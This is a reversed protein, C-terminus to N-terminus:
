DEPIDRGPSISTSSQGLQDFARYVCRWNGVVKVRTEGVFWGNGVATPVTASTALLPTFHEVVQRVGSRPQSVDSHVPPYQSTTPRCGTGCTGLVVRPRHHRAPVSGPWAPRSFPPLSRDPCSRLGGSEDGSQRHVLAVAGQHRHRTHRLEADSTPPYTPHSAQVERGTRNRTRTKATATPPEAISSTPCSTKSTPIRETLARIQDETNLSERHTRPNNKTPRLAYGLHTSLEGPATFLEELAHVFERKPKHLGREWNGVTAGTVGVQRGIQDQSFRAQVRLRELAAGFVDRQEATAKM